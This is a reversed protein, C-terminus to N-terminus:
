GGCYWDSRILRDRGGLRFHYHRGRRRPPSRSCAPHQRGWCRWRDWSYSVITTEDADISGSDDADVDDADTAAADIVVTSGTDVIYKPTDSPFNSKAVNTADTPTSGDAATLEVEPTAPQDWIVLKVVAATSAVGSNDTVALTYYAYFPSEAATLNDVTEVDDTTADDTSLRSTTGSEAFGEGEEGTAPHIRNWSYGTVVGNSDSSGSGDLVVLAGEMIDWENDANGDEGPGAIVADVTFDDTDTNDGDDQLLNATLAIDAVPRQNFEFTVTTSDTGAPTDNDTVTLRIEISM